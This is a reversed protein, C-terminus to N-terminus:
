FLLYPLAGVLPLLVWLAVFGFAAVAIMTLRGRRRERFFEVGGFALFALAGAVLVVTPVPATQWAWSVLLGVAFLFALVAWMLLVEYVGEGLERGWWKLGRWFRVPLCTLWAVARKQWWPRSAEARAQLVAVRAAGLRAERDHDGM